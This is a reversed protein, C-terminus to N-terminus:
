RSSAPFLGVAAQARALTADAVEAARAGGRSLTSVVYSPDDALERHRQQLPRLCDIVVEATADKLPGYRDFEDALAAIPRGTIAGLISLLNTVGPQNIPDVRVEGLTDTVARRLKRSIIEPPDLLYIIGQESTASKGMKTTPDSLDMVRAAVPPTAAEPLVFTRGYTANFRMALDRALELHQRQDDGVPVRGADYLLIDAAMLTPYTFLGVRVSEAQLNTAKDKFQVMRRLEGFGATCQMLWAMQCHAPVHSQVFLTAQAPDLGAALFLTATEVTLDRLRHPDMEVTLAHLDVVCFFSEDSSGLAGATTGHLAKEPDTSPPPSSGAVFHRLAGLYNGLHLRGSPKIGSFVRM